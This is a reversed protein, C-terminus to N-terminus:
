DRPSPSTYLLVPIREGRAQLAQVVRVTGDVAIAEEDSTLLVGLRGAFRPHNALFSEIALVMAALSSKMDAVGRGLLEGERETPEFPDAHWWQRPGAPVVDTHGAFVFLPGPLGGERVAWLNDVEGFRMSECVFGLPKLREAIVDQCGADQPSVSRLRVLTETLERVADHLNLATTTM